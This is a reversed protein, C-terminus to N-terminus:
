MAAAEARWLEGQPHLMDKNLIGKIQAPATATDATFERLVMAAERSRRVDCDEGEDECGSGDFLAEEDVVGVVVDYENMCSDRAGISAHRTSRPRRSSSRQEM